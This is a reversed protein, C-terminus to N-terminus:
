LPNIERCEAEGRGSAPQIDCVIGEQAVWLPTGAVILTHVSKYNDFGTMSLDPLPNIMIDAKGRKIKDDCQAIDDIYRTMVQHEPLFAKATQTTLPGACVRVDPRAMLDRLSKIEDVLPSDQPIQLFQSSAIMTCGYRRSVRRRLNQTRGGTANLQGVFDVEDDILASTSALRGPPYGVDVYKIEVGYHEGLETLVANLYGKTLGEFYYSTSGPTSPVDQVMRRIEGSDIIKKLLGVPEEPYPTFEPLPLCDALYVVFGNAAGPQVAPEADLVEGISGNHLARVWAADFARIMQERGRATEDDVATATNSTACGALVTVAISAATILLTRSYRFYSM